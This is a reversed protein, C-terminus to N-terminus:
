IDMELLEGQNVSVMEDTISELHTNTMTQIQKAVSRASKLLHEKQPHNRYRDLRTVVDLLRTELDVVGTPVVRMDSYFLIKLPWSNSKEIEIANGFSKRQVMEIVEKDMGLELLMKETAEHDAEGYKAIVEEQKQKLPSDEELKFKVINALDHVLAGKRVLEKDLGDNKWGDSILMAVRTVRLLHERLNEPIGFKDYVEGIRVGL